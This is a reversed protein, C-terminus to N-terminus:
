LRKKNSPEGCFLCHEKWCFPPHTSRRKVAVSSKNPLQDIRDKRGADRCFNRRCDVHVKQGVVFTITDGAVQNLTNAGKERLEVTPQGDCLNRNCFPCQENSM